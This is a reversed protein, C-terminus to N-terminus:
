THFVRQLARREGHEVTSRIDTSEPYRIGSAKSIIHMNEASLEVAGNARSVLLGFIMLSSESKLVKLETYFPVRFSHVVVQM